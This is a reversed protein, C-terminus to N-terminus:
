KINCDLYLSQPPKRPLGAFWAAMFKGKSLEVITSAHCSIEEPKPDIFQEKILKVQAFCAFNALFAIFIFTKKM